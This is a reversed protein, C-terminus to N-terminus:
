SVNNWDRHDTITRLRVVERQGAEWSERTEGPRYWMIRGWFRTLDPWTWGLNRATGCHYRLNELWEFIGKLYGAQEWKYMIETQAQLFLWFTRSRLSHTTSSICLADGGLGSSHLLFVSPSPFQHLPTTHHQTTRDPNSPQSGTQAQPSRPEGSTEPESTQDCEAALGCKDRTWIASADSIRM